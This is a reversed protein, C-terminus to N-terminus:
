AAVRRSAKIALTAYWRDAESLNVHEHTRYDEPRWYVMAGDQDHTVVLLVPHGAMTRHSITFTM